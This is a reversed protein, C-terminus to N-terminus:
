MGVVKEGVLLGSTNPM